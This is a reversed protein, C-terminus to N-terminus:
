WTYVNTPNAEYASLRRALEAKLEETPEPRWGADILQDWLRFVLDAQEEMSWSQVEQLVSSTDM